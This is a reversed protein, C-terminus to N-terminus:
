ANKDGELLEPNDWRNGIIEFQSELDFENSGYSWWGGNIRLPIENFCLGCADDFITEVNYQYDYGNHDFVTLVGIDGHFIKKENEDQLGTWIGLTSEDIFVTRNNEDPNAAPIYMMWAAHCCDVGRIPYGYVWEQTDNQKARFLLNNVLM